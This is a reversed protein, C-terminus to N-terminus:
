RGRAGSLGFSRFVPVVGYGTMELYGRGTVPRGAAQGAIVIAGEWYTVGTSRDTDLEQADLAATVDLDLAAGPVRVKWAVPYRAKSAPSTWMRGPELRFGSEVTIARTTGDAEVLTGSSRPDISGDARRLQFIMLDRGDSLQMSFWDWGVQGADLFSSGFEHDMWSEGTVAITQGDVAITGRTPMRTLSYYHSANGPASGKRSYGADGHLVPRRNEALDLSVGFDKTSARLRHLSGAELTVEWDENWVRYTDTAAGAWGPGTRNMRDTFHHRRGNVDTVALHAMFLDRVAWRSRGAPAPDVGVRFFTLQYGFRRGDAAVLNGTYYWWALGYEPHSAHDAPLVIPRGPAASKWASAPPAIQRAPNTAGEGGSRSASTQGSAVVGITLAAMATGCARVRWGTM